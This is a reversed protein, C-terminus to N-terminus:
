PKKQEPSVGFNAGTISTNSSHSFNANRLDITVAYDAMIQAGTSSGVPSPADILGSLEEKFKADQKFKKELLIKLMPSAAEPDDKFMDLTAKETDSVFVAKTREWLTKALGSAHEASEKAVKDTLEEAIKEAGKKIYPILFSSVVSSALAAIDIM